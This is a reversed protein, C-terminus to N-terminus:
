IQTILQDNNHWQLHPVTNFDLLEVRNATVQLTTMSSNRLNWINEIILPFPHSQVSGLLTAIVGGSTFLVAHGDPGVADASAHVANLGRSMFNAWREAGNLSDDQADRWRKMITLYDSFTLDTGSASSLGHAFLHDIETHSYENLDALTTVDLLLAAEDLALQATHQQRVLTGAFAAGPRLGTKAWWQGLYRAQEIGLPSLRDYNDTGASAQGHRVLTVISM